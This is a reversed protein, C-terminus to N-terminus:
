DCQTSLHPASLRLNLCSKVILTIVSLNLLMSQQTVIVLRTGLGGVRGPFSALCHGLRGGKEYWCFHGVLVVPNECCDLTLENLISTAIIFFHANVKM